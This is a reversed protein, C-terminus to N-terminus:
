SSGLVAAQSSTTARRSDTQRSMRGSQNQAGQIEGYVDGEDFLKPQLQHARASPSASSCRLTPSRWRLEQRTAWPPTSMVRSSTAMACAARLTCLCRGSIPGPTTVTSIFVLKMRGPSPSNRAVPRKSCREVVMAKQSACTTAASPLSQACAVPVKVQSGARARGHPSARAERAAEPRRSVGWGAACAGAAGVEAGASRALRQQEAGVGAVRDELGDLARLIRAFWPLQM